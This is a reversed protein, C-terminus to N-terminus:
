EAGDKVDCLKSVSNKTRNREEDNDKPSERLARMRPDPIQYENYCVIIMYNIYLNYIKYNKVYIMRKYFM